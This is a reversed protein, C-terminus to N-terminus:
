YYVNGNNTNDTLLQQLKENKIFLPYSTVRGGKLEKAFKVCHAKFNSKIIDIDAFEGKQMREKLEDGTVTDIYIEADKGYFKPLAFISNNEIVELLILELM